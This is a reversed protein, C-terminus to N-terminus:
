RVHGHVHRDAHQDAAARVYQTASVDDDGRDTRSTSPTTSASRRASPLTVVKSPDAAIMDIAGLQAKVLSEVLSLDMNM